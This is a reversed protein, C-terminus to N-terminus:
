KRNEVRDFHRYIIPIYLGSTDYPFLEGIFVFRDEARVPDCVVVCRNSNKEICFDWNSISKLGKKVSIELHLNGKKDTRLSYKTIKGEYSWGDTGYCSLTVIDDDLIIYNRSPDVPQYRKGNDHLSAKFVFKKDKIAKAAQQYLALDTSEGNEQAQVTMTGLGLLFVIFFLVTKKM